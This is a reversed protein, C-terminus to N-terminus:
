PNGKKQDKEAGRRGGAHGKHGKSAGKASAEGMADGHGKHGKPAGKAIRYYVGKGTTGEKEVLGLETLRALDQSATRKAVGLLDQYRSNSVPSHDKLHRVAIRLREPIDFAALREPTLWDRWLTVLFHPGRQEFDPEPLGARASDRIMDTTGTGAKEAYGVRFLPEAILPNRPLPGHAIRLEQPSMGYPLRGPNWVEVRDAFVIVQVFGHSTYDRHAVANVIAERIVFEPIESTVPASAGGTAIGVGSQLKGLVFTLAKDIVEFATGVVVQQDDIPKAKEQGRFHLCQVEIGPLFSSPDEGFLLVAACTPVRGEMLHFHKLVDGPPATEALNLRGKSRALKLFRRIKESSIARESAGKCPSSDFPATRLVGQTKLFDVLAKYVESQLSALDSFRGYILRPQVEQLLAEMKSDRRSGEPLDRVFVLREPSHTAQSAHQFELATASLGDRVKKGYQQGLIALFITRREIEGLYLDDPKRDKASIDKEFVFVDPFYEGLFPDRTIYEKLAAREVSFESVVASVFISFPTNM